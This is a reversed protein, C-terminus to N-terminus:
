ELRYTALPEAGAAAGEEVVALVRGPGRLRDSPLLLSFGGFDDPRTPGSRWLTRGDERLEIRYTDDPPVDAASLLVTAWPSDGLAAAAPPAAPEDARLVLDEPLLEVVPHGARPAALDALRGELARRESEAGQRSLLLWGGLVALAVVAAAAAWRGLGTGPRASPAGAFAAIRRDGAVAELAASARALALDDRCAECQALHRELADREAADLEGFALAVLSGAVPHTDHLRAVELTAALEGRCAPCRELHDRVADREASGLSRNLYWPLREVATECDM